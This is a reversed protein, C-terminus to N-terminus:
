NGKADIDYRYVYSGGAAVTTLPVGKVAGVVTAALKADLSLKGAITGQGVVGITTQGVDRGSNTEKYTVSGSMGGAIMRALGSEVARGLAPATLVGLMTGAVILARINASLRDVPRDYLRM